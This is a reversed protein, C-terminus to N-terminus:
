RREGWDPVQLLGHRTGLLRGFTHSGPGGGDGIPKPEPAAAGHEEDGTGDKREHELREWREEQILKARVYDEHAKMISTIEDDLNAGGIEQM